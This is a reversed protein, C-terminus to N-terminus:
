LWVMGSGPWASHTAGDMESALSNGGTLRHQVGGIKCKCEPCISEQM